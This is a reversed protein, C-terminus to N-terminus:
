GIRRYPLLDFGRYHPSRTDRARGNARIFTDVPFGIGAWNHAIINGRPLTYVGALRRNHYDAFRQAPTM